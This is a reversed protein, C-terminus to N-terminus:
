RNGTHVPLPPFIRRGSPRLAQQRSFICTCDKVDGTKDANVPAKFTPCEFFKSATGDAIKAIGNEGLCVYIDGNAEDVAIVAKNGKPSITTGVQYTAAVDQMENDNYVTLTADSTM